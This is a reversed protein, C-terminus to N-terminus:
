KNAYMGEDIAFVGDTAFAVDGTVNFLVMGMSAPMLIGLIVLFKKM